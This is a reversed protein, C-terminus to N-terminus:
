LHFVIRGLFLLGVLFCSLAFAAPVLTVFLAASSLRGEKVDVPLGQARRADINRGKAEEHGRMLALMAVLSLGVCFILCVVAVKASFAAVPTATRGASLSSALIAVAIGSATILTKAADVYMNRSDESSYIWGITHAHWWVRLVFLLPLVAISFVVFYFICTWGIM